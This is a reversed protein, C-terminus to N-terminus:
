GKNCAPCLGHYTIEHGSVMFGAPLHPKDPSSLACGEICFTKDCNACHFHHHHQKGSIEYRSQGDPLVVQQILGAKHLLKLNRYVTAIGLGPVLKGAAAFVEDPTLARDTDTLATIIAERRKSHRQGIPKKSAKPM